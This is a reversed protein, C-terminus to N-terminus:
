FRFGFLGGEEYRDDLKPGIPEVQRLAGLLRVQELVDSNLTVVYQLGDRACVEEALTLAEAVQREDVGDFLHSDHVLFGPGRGHRHCIVAATLDLCFIVMRNIGLSDGSDVHPTIELSHTGADILLYADREGGYLRRAFETFMLIAERTQSAREEIDAKLTAQLTARQEAIERQSSELALATEHQKRLAALTAQKQALLQQRATLGDLAGGEQLTRLTASLEDGLRTREEERDALRREIEAIEESLYRRRNRVISHHFGRVDDFSRRVGDPLVVGLESYVQELYATEPDNTEAVARRLDTLNRRDIVDEDPLARVRRDLEDAQKKLEEYAPVVRFTSVEHALREVDAEAVVIKTRLDATSGVVRAWAPDDMAARLQKRTAERAAIERYRAALQWGLGLLYALNATADSPRQQPFTQVPSNFAHAGARRLLLSLMARGSIGPGHDAPLRFLRSEIARTWETVTVEHAYEFGDDFDLADQVREALFANTEVVKHRKGCRSVKVPRTRGPWDLELTFRIDRLAPRTVLSNKRVTSGLLFHLLEIMSSKGTGNRSDTGSSEGRTRAVLLNLGPRFTVTRFRPDDASLRRLM